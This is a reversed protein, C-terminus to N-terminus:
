VESEMVIAGVPCVQACIGCGKCNDMNPEFHSSKLFISGTPCYLCCQGCQCCKDQKINPREFRWGKLPTVALSPSIVWPLVGKSESKM